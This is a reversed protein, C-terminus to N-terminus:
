FLEVFDFELLYVFLLFSKFNNVINFIFYNIINMMMIILKIIKTVIKFIIVLQCIIQNFNLNVTYKSLLKTKINILKITLRKSHPLSHWPLPNLPPSPQHIKLQNKINPRNISNMLMCLM